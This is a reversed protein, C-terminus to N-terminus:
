NIEIPNISSFSDTWLPVDSIDPDEKRILNGNEDLYRRNVSPFLTLYESDNTIIMYHNKLILHDSEESQFKNRFPMGLHEAQRKVVPYLNLYRNTIHVVILGKPKLHIRYIEFAEKTLLHIPVSDGSFADLVIVDYQVNGPAQELKLRADGLIIEKRSAKCGPVNDFWQYAIRIMEPNIEYFDYHDSERAYTALAGTGLGVVAVRIKPYKLKAYELTEGVGSEISYYSVPLARKDPHTFQVGHTIEGSYLVRYSQSPDTRHVREKVTVTGYFNRSRQLYIEEYEPSSPAVWYFPDLWFCVLGALVLGVTGALSKRAMTTNKNQSMQGKPTMESVLIFTGLAIALLLCLPWEYFEDFLNTAVLAVFLGGCAGGFSMWLYFETLYHPLKPRLRVLEGHCMFCILFMVLFHGWRVETVTFDWEFGLRTGIDQIGTLLAITLLCASPIIRRHYWREHDFCIIFTLLYLSLTTIWLRPEPAIDHSVRDTTAIFTLSALAPLAVWGVRERVTPIDSPASEEFCSAHAYDSSSSTHGQLIQFAATICLVAFLWFGFTWYNGLQTLEFFPEFLYPFSLLALFSGVNSLAYLRYPSRGPYTHSFWYQILPGTTALCFYPIGVCSGLLLLVQWVPSETSDPKLSEGPVVFTALYAATVVLAMHILSQQRLSLYRSVLHAYSYGFFLVAQFFLMATTWVMPSGGFWPLILKSILPQVQFLLYASVLITLALVAGVGVDTLALGIAETQTRRAM